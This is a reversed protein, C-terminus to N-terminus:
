GLFIEAKGSGFLINSFVLTLGTSATPMEFTVSGRRSGNASAPGGLDPLGDSVNIPGVKKGESDKLEFDAFTSFSRQSSALNMLEAEVSVYRSGEAPTTLAPGPVFPDTVAVVTLQADGLKVVDGVRFAGSPATVSGGVKQATQEGGCGVLGVLGVLGVVALDRRVKM